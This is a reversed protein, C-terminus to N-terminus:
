KEEFLYVPGIMGGTGLENIFHRTGAITIQNEADSRLFKTVDFSFPQAYGDAMELDEGEDNHFPVAQGNVYVKVKGDTAALWLTVKKEPTLKPTKFAQRYWMTGYTGLFGLDSWTETGIDTTKWASDDFDSQHWKDGVGEAVGDFKPEDAKPTTNQNKILAFKWDRLPPSIVKNEQAMRAADDYTAKTFLKFWQGGVTNKAWYTKSFAANKEYEDGLGIQTGYWEAAQRDLDKLRGENLDWRMQMFREFQRLALEQMKVRQYIHPTEAAALATTMVERASALIEPTFRRSYSWLSGAHEPSQTWAKDFIEWYEKMPGAAPGYFRSYFEELVEEPKLHSDLSLRLSLWMGPLVEEFNPLTEPQWFIVRNKYLFPLEESMQRIMPYPATVEALHFMYNYYSVQKAVKGWGEVISRVQARSPCIEVENFDHARCYNIPAIQPVLSPALKERIPAQTYQVYALFGFRVKPYKKTVKAAILNCLKVYRDTLSVQGMATDWDGADWATDDTQDFASGDDPSLSVSPQYNKDLKTIIAEAIADSVEPNSWKLRTKHPQGDIEAIWDPHEKRQEKTIYEELAHEAKVLFGGLRNRRRFADDAYWINRYATDPADTVDSEPFAITPLSPLSEGLDGPLFWRCGLRDLLEYIAYSAGEDTEGQLGIGDKAITVRWEQQYETNKKWAGFREAAYKGILIPLGTDNQEWPRQQILIEAGSIKQLTAALDKVSDRLRQRLTESQKELFSADVPLKIDAAMVSPEVYIAAKAKGNDIVSVAASSSCVSMSILIAFSLYHFSKM